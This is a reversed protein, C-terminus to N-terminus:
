GTLTSVPSTLTLAFHSCLRQQKESDQRRPDADLAVISATYLNDGERESGDYDPGANGTGWYVLNLEPDYAGTAWTSGGGKEWAKPDM